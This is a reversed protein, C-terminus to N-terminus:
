CLGTATTVGQGNPPVPSWIITHSPTGGTISLAISGDCQGACSVGTIIAGSSLPLPETILVQATTDCGGGDSILVTYVGACLGTAMPTGQGGSPAPSWTFVYPPIGGSVGV